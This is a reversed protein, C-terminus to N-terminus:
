GDSDTPMPEANAYEAPITLPDRETRIAQGDLLAAAAGRLIEAPKVGHAEFIDTIYLAESRKFSAGINKFNEKQYKAYKTKVDDRKRYKSRKEKSTM